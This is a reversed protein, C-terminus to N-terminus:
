YDARQRADLGHVGPRRHWDAPAALTRPHPPRAEHVGDDASLTGFGDDEVLKKIFDDAITKAEKESCTFHNLILSVTLTRNTKTQVYGSLAVVMDLTGTKGIFPVGKLRENLTGAGPKVLADLWVDKSPQKAAWQLLKVLGRTTVLNHRSMGSGDEPHFDGPAAGVVTTLFRGLAASAAAYPDMGLENGKAAGMLLLHEAINNDSKTLCVKIAEKLPPGGLTLTARTTPVKNTLFLGKGLYSAAGADPFPLALTDIRAREQPLDGDVVLRGRMPDYNIHRKGARNGRQPQIGYNYPLISLREGQAWLEIAGQDVTFATVPAAYRNPLDDWEWSPPILPRYAQRLYVPKRKDLRLVSAAKELREHTMMPDGPSDVVIKDSLKWIKTEPRHGSGLKYLAFSNSLLKQNSGPMVRTASNREYLVTGSDDAVTCSIVAGSLKTDDLLADLDNPLTFLLLTALV